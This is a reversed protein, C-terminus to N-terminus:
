REIPFISSASSALRALVAEGRPSLRYGTELSITLGLAKLKRVDDKFAFRERGLAGALTTSVVGPREAIVRLTALTWPAEATNDLRALKAAITAMEDATPVAARLAERPDEGGPRLRIRYCVGEQADFMNRLAALNPYNAAVADAETLAAPDIEEVAEIALMGLQTRISGGARATPKKWRRFATTIRGSLIAELDKSRFLM